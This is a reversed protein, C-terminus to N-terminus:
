QKPAIDLEHTFIVITIDQTNLAASVILAIELDRKAIAWYDRSVPILWL